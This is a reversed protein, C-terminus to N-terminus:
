CWPGGGSSRRAAGLPGGHPQAGVVSAIRSAEPAILVLSMLIIHFSFLKVPVDYTMNLRSSRCRPPSRSWRGSRPWGPCSCCSVGCALEMFGAFMEYSKSAGISAWLVGMPSFNGFPELLRQLGPAPMQLPVAKVMGYGLMTAGLSFRLFVRFWKHLGRYHPRRRDVVSWVATVAAAAALLTFVQLYDVLKDGSGTTQFSPPAGLRFVHVGAWSIIRQVVATGGVNPTWGFPLLGGLMQTTAVYLSFYLFAFRFAIRTALHWRPQVEARQATRNSQAGAGAFAEPLTDITAVDLTAPAPM